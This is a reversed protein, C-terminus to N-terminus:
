KFHMLVGKVLRNALVLHHPRTERACVVLLGPLLEAESRFAIDVPKHADSMEGAVSRARPRKSDSAPAAGIVVVTQGLLGSEPWIPSTDTAISM